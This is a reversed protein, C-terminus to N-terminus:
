SGSTTPSPGTSAPARCSWCSRSRAAPRARVARRGQDPLGRPGAAPVRVARGPAQRLLRRPDRQAAELRHRAARRLRGGPLVLDNISQYGGLATQIAYQTPVNPCLRMNALIELGEIYSTPTSSRARVAGDLRHPLRGGPLGQVPRQLHPLAPRARAVRHSVHTADDYLIKDYIEDSFLVLDHRRALEVIQELTERPYVAGTPNNPNIIVIAKTRPRSRRRSTTSTPSGTPARTACTTCRAHRRVASVAATWLPYDPAPVLVEDGNNLLAQLSMVILESVGNGLWVDEIDVGHCTRARTTSCSRAAPRSCARPTATARRPRCTASSTRCSRRRRRSASRRRTASTSSSSATARPRWGSPRRCCRAASTTASTPSSRPSPSRWPSVRIPGAGRPRAPCEPEIDASTPHSVSHPADCQGYPM